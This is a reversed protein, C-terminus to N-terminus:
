STHWGWCPNSEHLSQLEGLLHPRSPALSINSHRVVMPPAGRGHASLTPLKTSIPGNKIINSERHSTHPTGKVQTYLLISCFRTLFHQHTAVKIHVRESFTLM